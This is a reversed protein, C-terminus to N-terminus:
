WFTRWLSVLTATMLVTVIFARRFRTLEPDRSLITWTTFGLLGITVVFQTWDIKM